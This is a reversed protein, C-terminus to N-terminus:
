GLLGALPNSTVTQTVFSVVQTTVLTTSTLTTYTPRNRFIVKFEETNTETIVTDRTVPSSVIKIGQGLLGGIGRPAQQTPAQAQLGGLAGLGGLGGGAVTRTSLVYDTKTTFGVTSTLTTFFEKAGLFLQLVSSEVVPETKYVPSSETVVQRGGLGLAALPNQLLQLYLLQEPTVGLGSLSTLDLGPPSTPAQASPSASLFSSEIAPPNKLEFIEPNHQKEMKQILAHKDAGLFDSPPAVRIPTPGELGFNDQDSFELEGPLLSERNESGAEEFLNDFDAFSAEPSFEYLEMPPITKIATVMKTISYTQSLTFLSTDTGSVVPLISKRILVEDTTFSETVTKLPPTALHLSDAITLAPLYETHTDESGEISLHAPTTALINEPAPISATDFLPTHKLVSSPTPNIISPELSSTLSSTPSIEVPKTSTRTVTIFRTSKQNDEVNFTYPSRITAVELFESPADDPHITLVSLTTQLRAMRAEDNDLNQLIDEDDITSIVLASPSSENDKEDEKKEGGLAKLGPRKDFLKSRFLTKRLDPRKFRNFKKFEIKPKNKSDQKKPKKTTSPQINSQSEVPASESTDKSSFRDRSGYSSKKRPTFKSSSRRGSTQERISDRINNKAQSTRSRSFSPQQTHHRRSPRSRSRSGFGATSRGSKQKEKVEEEAEEEEEDRDQYRSRFSRARPKRPRYSPAQTQEENLSRRQSTSEQTLEKLALKAKEKKFRQKLREKYSSAASSRNNIRLRGRLGSPAKTVAEDEAEITTDLNNEDSAPLQTSTVIEQVGLEETSLSDYHAPEESVRSPQITSASAGEDGAVDIFSQHQEDELNFLHELQLAPTTAVSSAAAARANLLPSGDDINGVYDNFGFATQPQQDSYIPAVHIADPV